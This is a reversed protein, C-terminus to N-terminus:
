HSYFYYVCFISEAEKSKTHLMKVADTAQITTQSVQSLSEKVEKKPQAIDPSQPTYQCVQPPSSSLSLNKNYM